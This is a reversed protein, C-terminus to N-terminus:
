DLGVRPKSRCRRDALIFAGGALLTVGGLMSGPDIEPVNHDGGNGNGNNGNGSNGSNGNDNGNGDDAMAPAALAALVLLM